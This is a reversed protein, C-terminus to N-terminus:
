KVDICVGTNVRKCTKFVSKKKVLRLGYVEFCCDIGIVCIRNETLTASETEGFDNLSATPGM